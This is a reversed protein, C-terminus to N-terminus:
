IEKKILYECVLKALLAHGEDTPHLGDAFLGHTHLTEPEPFYSSLDLYDVGRKSLAVREADIYDSLPYLAKIKNGEGHVSSQM